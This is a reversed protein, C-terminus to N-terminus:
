FSRVPFVAEPPRSVRTSPTSIVVAEVNVRRVPIGALQWRGRPRLSAVALRKKELHFKKRARPTSAPSALHRNEELFGNWDVCTRVYSPGPKQCTLTLSNQTPTFPATYKELHTKRPTQLTRTKTNSARIWNKVDCMDTLTKKKTRWVNKPHWFLKKKPGSHFKGTEKQVKPLSISSSLLFPVKLKHFCSTPIEQFDIELSTRLLEDIM